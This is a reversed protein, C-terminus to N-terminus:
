LFFDAADVASLHNLQIQFNTSGNGTLDIELVVNAGSTFYRLQPSGGTFADTGMFAITGAIASLDIMDEGDHFDLIIDRGGNNGSDGNAFIFVDAGAGGAMTDRGGGGTILDEGAGGRLLDAGGGGDITDDGDAGKITDSGVDGTLLDDGGNGYIEDNGAAGEITDAGAGGRATDSGAGALIHDNGDGGTMLDSEDGGDIDDDGGGGFITDFGSGGNLLDDGGRGSLLDDDSGGYLDDAQNGGILTDFGAEGSVSGFVLGDGAANYLDNGADLHVDGDIIGTNNLVDGETSSQVAIGDHGIITGTNTLIMWGLGGSVRVGTGGEIVGANTGILWMGAYNFGNVKGDILGTNTLYQPGTSDAFATPSIRIGDGSVSSITGSNTIDTRSAFIDLGSDSTSGGMATISGANLLTFKDSNTTIGDGNLSVVSGAAGISILNNFPVPNSARLLAIGTNSSFIGGQITITHGGNTGSANTLGYGESTVTIGPLLVFDQEVALTQTSTQNTAVFLTM